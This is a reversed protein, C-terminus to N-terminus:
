AANRRILALSAIGLGLLAASSGADPVPVSTTTLHVFIARPAVRPFSTGDIPVDKIIVVGGTAPVSTTVVQANEEAPPATIPIGFAPPGILAALLIAQKNKMNIDIELKTAARLM